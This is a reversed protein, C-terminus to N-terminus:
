EGGEVDQGGATGGKMKEAIGVAKGGGEATDAADKKVENCGALLWCTIGLTLMWRLMTKDKV